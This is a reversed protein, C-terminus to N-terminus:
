FAQKLLNQKARKNRDSDDYMKQFGRLRYAKNTIAIDEIKKRFDIRTSKFLDKLKKSLNHGAYITSGYKQCQSRSVDISYEQKIADAM